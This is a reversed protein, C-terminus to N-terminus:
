REKGLFSPVTSEKTTTLAENERTVHSEDLRAIISELLQSKEPDRLSIGNAILLTEIDMIKQISRLGYYERTDGSETVLALVEDDQLDQAVGGPSLELGVRGARILRQKFEHKAQTNWYLATKIGNEELFKKTLHPVETHVITGPSIDTLTRIGSGNTSVLELYSNGQENIRGHAFRGVVEIDPLMHDELIDTGVMGLDYVGESVRKPVRSSRTKILRIEDNAMGDVKGIRLVKGEPNNKTPTGKDWVPNLGADKFHREIPGEQNYSYGIRIKAMLLLRCTVM